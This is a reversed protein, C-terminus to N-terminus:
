EVRALKSVARAFFLSRLDPGLPDRRVHSAFAVAVAGERDSRLSAEAAAGSGDVEGGGDSRAAVVVVEVLSPQHRAGVRVARGDTREREVARSAEGLDRTVRTSM